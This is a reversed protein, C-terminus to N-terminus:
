ARTSFWGAVCVCSLRDPKVKRSVDFNGDNTGIVSSKSSVFLKAYWRRTAYNSLAKVLWFSVPFNSDIISSNYDLWTIFNFPQSSTNAPISVPSSPFWEFFQIFNCLFSLDLSRAFEIQLPDLWHRHLGRILSFWMKANLRLAILPQSPKYSCILWPLLRFFFVPIEKVEKNNVFKDKWEEDEGASCICNITRESFIYLWFGFIPM